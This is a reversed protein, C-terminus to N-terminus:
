PIDASVTTPIISAQSSGDLKAGCDDCVEHIDDWPEGQIFRLSGHYSTHVHKCQAQQLLSLFEQLSVWRPALGSGECNACPQYCMYPKGQANLAECVHVYAAGKCLECTTLVQVKM